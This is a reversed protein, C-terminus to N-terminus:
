FTGAIGAAAGYRDINLTPTWTLEPTSTQPSRASSDSMEYAILPAVLFALGGLISAPVTVFLREDYQMTDAIAVGAGLIGGGVVTGILGGLYTWGAHGRGGVADAGLAVGLPYLALGVTAGIGVGVMPGVFDFCGGGAFIDTKTCNSSAAAGVLFGIVPPAALMGLGALLGVVVRAPPDGPDYAPPPPEEHVAEAFAPSSEDSHQADVPAATLATFLALFAVAFAVGRGRTRDSTRFRPAFSSPAGSSSAGVPLIDHTLM